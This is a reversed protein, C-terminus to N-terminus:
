EMINQSNFRTTPTPQRVVDPYKIWVPDWDNYQSQHLHRQASGDANMIWLQAQGTRSSWFVLQQGNPSWSPHGDIITPADRTLQFADNGARSVTWIKQSQELNLAFAIREAGPSWVPDLAQGAEFYTLQEAIQTHYDYLFVSPVLDAESHARGAELFTLFSQDQSLKNRAKATEYIAPNGLLAVNDGNADMVYIQSAGGRDSRFAIKGLMTIPIQVPTPTATATPVSMFVPTPTATWVNVPTPTATGYLLAEATAVQGRYVATAQNAAADRTVIVPTVWHAPLPTPTRTLLDPNVQAAATVVNEPTPTSTIIVYQLQEIVIRLIPVPRDPTDATDSLMRPGYWTFLNDPGSAPGDIRFAIKDHTLQQILADLQNPGFVFRQTVEEALQTAPLAPHLRAQVEAQRFRDYTLFAWNDNIANDLLRVQWVGGQGLNRANLGTLELAAYVIKSDPPIASIDFQLAGHYVHEGFTGVRIQGDGFHSQGDLTSTWGTTDFTAELAIEIGNAPPGITTISETIPETTPLVVVTPTPTRTPLGMTPSPTLLGQGYVIQEAPAPGDQWLRWSVYLLMVGWAAIIVLWVALMLRSMVYPSTEYTRFM